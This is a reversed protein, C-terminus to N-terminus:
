DCNRLSHFISEARRLLEDPVPVMEAAGATAAAEAIERLVRCTEACEECGSALHATMQGREPTQMVGRVYDAWEAIEYHDM